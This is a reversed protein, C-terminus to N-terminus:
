VCRGLFTCVKVASLHMEAEQGIESAPGSEFYGQPWPAYRASPARARVPTRVRADRTRVTLEAHKVGRVARM